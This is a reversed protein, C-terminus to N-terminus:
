CHPASQGPHGPDNYVVHHTGGAAAGSVGAVTAAAAAMAAAEEAAVQAAAMADAKKKLMKKAKKRRNKETKKNRHISSSMPGDPAAPPATGRMPNDQADPLRPNGFSALPVSGGHELDIPSGSAHSAPALAPDSSLTGTHALRSASAMSEADTPGAGEAPSGGAVAQGDGPASTAPCPANGGGEPIYGMERTLIAHENLAHM